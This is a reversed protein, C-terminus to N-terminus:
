DRATSKVGSVAAKLNMISSIVENSAMSFQTSGGLHLQAAESDGSNIIEAVMGAVAHFHKHKDLLDIFEPKHGYLARGSSHLWIGLDCCDDRKIAYEDLEEGKVAADRLRTKWNRHAALSKDLTLQTESITTPMTHSYMDVLQVIEM